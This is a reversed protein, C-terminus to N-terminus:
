IFFARNLINYIWKNNNNIIASAVYINDKFCIKPFGYGLQKSLFIYDKSNNISIKNTEKHIKCDLSEIVDGTLVFIDNENLHIFSNLKDKM